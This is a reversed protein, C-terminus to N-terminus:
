RRQRAVAEPASVDSKWAKGVETALEEAHKLFRELRHKREELPLLKPGRPVIDATRLRYESDSVKEIVIYTNALEAPLLLRGKADGKKAEM